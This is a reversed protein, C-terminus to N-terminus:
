NEGHIKAAASVPAVTKEDGDDEVGAEGDKSGQGIAVAVWRFEDSNDLVVKLIMTLPVALIIGILGWLWGWFLVCLVVVLISLGFRRGLLLPQVFNDLFMNILGYGGAVLLADTPGGDRAILALLVPPVSAILSGVVPIFNMVFALIGWLLFFDLGAAWCLGGALLGTALSIVTKIGLYRQTDQMADTLREFNPGRAAQIAGFRRGFGQAESLMFVTLIIVVGSTAFFSLVRGVVGTGLNWIQAFKVNRLEALNENTMENLKQAADEVGWEGLKGAIADNAELIKARALEYYEADWREQLDGIITVGLVVVAALFAFDVLVTLLVALVPPVRHRQLWGTVPYSVTAIFFALLMPVFFSQAARLGAVGIVLAAFLFVMQSARPRKPSSPNEMM